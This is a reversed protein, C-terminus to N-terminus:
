LLFVVSSYGAMTIKKDVKTVDGMVAVAKETTDSITFEIPQGAVNHLVLLKQGEYERYFASLAAPYSTSNYCATLSGLETMAPYINRLQGFTRYAALISDDSKELDAVSKFGDFSPLVAGTYEAYETSTWKMPQRIFADGGDKSGTYGLEEGYYVVPRGSLTLLLSGAMRMRNVNGDLGSGARHEDHNTLKVADIYTSKANKLQTQINKLGTAIDRGKGANLGAPLVNWWFDFNFCSLPTNRAFGVVDNTGSFVEAVMYLDEGNYQPKTKYYANLDSHFKSWFTYDRSDINWIGYVHKAADLRFGDVGKDLWGKASAIIAKYPENSALNNISGYNLEPMWVGFIPAFIKLTQMAAFQIDNASSNNLAYAVGEEIYDGTGGWKTGAPWSDSNSTRVLFGWPSKYNVVITYVGNGADYLRYNDAPDGFYIFMNVSTDSNSSQVAEETKEIKITSPKGNSTTLTFKYRQSDGSPDEIGYPTYWDSSNYSSIMPFKGAAVDVAPNYSLNYWDWYDSEPGKELADTYWSHGKGTHNVVYDLYIKINRDHAAKVLNEFDTMTGFQENVATYDRVDYGHYSDAPHIPSLWLAGAGLKEIYDMKNIIGQFDGVGDGNSDSFAYVLIEYIMNGRTKGDWADPQAIVADASIEAAAQKVEISASYGGAATVTLTATREITTTNTSAIVKAVTKGKAGQKSTLYCWDSSTASWAAPAEITIDQQGGEAAFSFSSPSVTLETTTSGPNEPEDTGGDGGCATFLALAALLTAVRLSDIFKRM